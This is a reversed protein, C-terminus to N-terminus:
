VVLGKYGAEALDLAKNLGQIVEAGIVNMKGGWSVALIGDGIDYVRALSNKWVINSEPLESLVITGEPRPM